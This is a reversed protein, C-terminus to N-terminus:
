RKNINLILGLNNIYVIKQSEAIIFDRFPFVSQSPRLRGACAFLLPLIPQICRSHHALGGSVPQRVLILEKQHRKREYQEHEHETISRQEAPRISEEVVPRADRQVRLAKHSELPKLRQDRARYLPLLDDPHHGVGDDHAQEIDGAGHQGDGKRHKQALDLHAPVLFGHLNERRQGVKDGPHQHIGEGVRQKVRVIAKFIHRHCM